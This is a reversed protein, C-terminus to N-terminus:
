ILDITWNMGQLKTDLERYQKSLQNITDQLQKVDICRVFKIETSSYREPRIMASECISRYTGIKSKLSDRRAIADSLNENEDFPTRNNTANIKRILLLLREMNQEYEAILNSPNEAPTDGEQIMANGKIRNLLQINKRQLEAREILAEALKMIDRKEDHVLM